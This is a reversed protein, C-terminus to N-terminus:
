PSKRGDNVIMPPAARQWIDIAAPKVDFRFAKGERTTILMVSAPRGAHGRDVVVVFESTTFSAWGKTTQLVGLDGTKWNRGEHDRVRFTGRAARRAIAQSVSIQVDLEDNKARVSLGRSGRSMPRSVEEIGGGGRHLVRGGQAGTVAGERLAHVGNVFVHRVGESRVAPNEYTAHDIITAPDFVTIDAKM